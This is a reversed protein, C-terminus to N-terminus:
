KPSPMRGGKRRSAMIRSIIDKRDADEQADGGGDAHQTSELYDDATLDDFESPHTQAMTHIGADEDNAVRGGKSYMRQKMIRDVLSPTGPSQYEDHENHPRAILRSEEHPEDPEMGYPGQEDEGHTGLAREDEHVAAADPRKIDGEHEAYGSCQECTDMSPMNHPCPNSSQYNDTIQGGEAMKKMKYAIALAQKQPKGHEMETSVNKSFAPKSKGKFLPM